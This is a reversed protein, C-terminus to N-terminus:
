ARVCTCASLIVNVTMTQESTLCPDMNRIPGPPSFPGWQRSNKEGAKVGGRVATSSLETLQGHIPFVRRVSFRRTAHQLSDVSFVVPERKWFLLMFTISSLVM